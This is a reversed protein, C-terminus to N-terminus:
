GRQREYFAEEINLFHKNIKTIDINSERNVDYIPKYRAFMADYIDRNDKRLLDPNKCFILQIFYTEAYDKM